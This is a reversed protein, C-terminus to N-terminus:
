DFKYESRNALEKRISDAGEISFEIGDECIFNASFVNGLKPVRELTYTMTAEVWDDDYEDRVKCKISEGSNLKVVALTKRIRELEGPEVDLITLSVGTPIVRIM